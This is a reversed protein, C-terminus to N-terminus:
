IVGAREPQIRWPRLLDQAGSLLFARLYTPKTYRVGEDGILPSPSPLPALYAAMRRVAENHLEDTPVSPAYALVHASCVALLSTAEAVSLGGVTARAGVQSGIAAKLEAATITIAM